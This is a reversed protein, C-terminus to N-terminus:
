KGFESNLTRTGIGLWKKLLGTSTLAKSDLKVINGLLSGGQQTKCKRQGRPGIQQTRTKTVNKPLIKRSVRKCRALSSKGNPLTMRKPTVRRRLFIKQRPMDASNAVDNKKVM